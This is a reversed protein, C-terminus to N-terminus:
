NRRDKWWLFAAEQSGTIKWCRVRLSEEGLEIGHHSEQFCRPRVVSTSRGQPGANLCGRIGTWCHTIPHYNKSTLSFQRPLVTFFKVFVWLSSLFNGEFGCWLLPWRHSIWRLLCQYVFQDVFTSLYHSWGRGIIWFSIILFFAPITTSLDCSVLYGFM